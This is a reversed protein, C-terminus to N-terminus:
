EIFLILQVVEEKDNTIKPAHRYNHIYRRTIIYSKCQINHLKYIAM